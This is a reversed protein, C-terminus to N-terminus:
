TSLTYLPPQQRAGRTRSASPMMQAIAVIARLLDRDRNRDGAALHDGVDFARDRLVPGRRQLRFTGRPVRLRRWLRLTTSGGLWQFVVFVSLWGSLGRPDCAVTLLYDAGVPLSQTAYIANTETEQPKLVFGRGDEAVSVNPQHEGGVSWLGCRSRDVRNGEQRQDGM